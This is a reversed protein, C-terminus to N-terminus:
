MVITTNVYLTGKHTKIPEAPTIESINVQFKANTLSTKSYNVLDNHGINLSYEPRVHLAM